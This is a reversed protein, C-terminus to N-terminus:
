AGGVAALAAIELRLGPAVAAALLAAGFLGGTAVVASLGGTRVGVVVLGGLVAGTGLAATLYGYGYTEANGSFTRQALLPLVVQFEYAFTGILAAMLLPIALAPMRRVHRFGDGLQGATRPAPPAPHLQSRNMSALAAVIAVFTAANILFCAGVGVLLILVGAVAPGVARAANVLLSNLSVANLLDATGVM